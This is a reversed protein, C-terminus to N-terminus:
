KLSVASPRSAALPSAFSNSARRKTSASPTLYRSTRPSCGEGVVHVLREPDHARLLPRDHKCEGLEAEVSAREGELEAIILGGPLIVAGAYGNLAAVVRDDLFELRSVTVGGAVAGIAARIAAGTTRFSVQVVITSEPIPHLRVTLETIM